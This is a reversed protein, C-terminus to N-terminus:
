AIDTAYRVSEAFRQAPRRGLSSALLRKMRGSAQTVAQHLSPASGTVSMPPYGAFRVEMMCRKDAAGVKEGDEDSLHVAVRTVQAGFRRLSQQVQVEVFQALPAHVAVHNDSHIQIMM